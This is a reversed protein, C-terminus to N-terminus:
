VDDFISDDIEEEEEQEDLAREEEVLVINGNIDEVAELEVGCEPCDVVDGIEVPEGFEMETGCNPCVYEM